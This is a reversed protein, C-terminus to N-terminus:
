VLHHTTPVHTYRLGEGDHHLEIKRGGGWGDGGGVGVMQLDHARLTFIYWAATGRRLWISSSHYAIDLITPGQVLDYLLTPFESKQEESKQEKARQGEKLLAVPAFRENREQQEKSM